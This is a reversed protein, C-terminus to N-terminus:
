LTEFWYQSWVEPQDRVLWSVVWSAPEGVWYIFRALERIGEWVPSRPKLFFAWIVIPHSCPRCLSPTICPGPLSPYCIWLKPYLSHFNYLTSIFYSCTLICLCVRFHTHVCMSIYVCMCVYVCVRIYTYVCIYVYMYICVYVCMCIYPFVTLSVSIHSSIHRSICVIYSYPLVYYPFWILTHVQISMPTYMLVYVRWVYSTHILSFM